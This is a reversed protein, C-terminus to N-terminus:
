VAIVKSHESEASIQVTCGCHTLCYYAEEPTKLGQDPSLCSNYACIRDCTEPHTHASHERKLAESVIRQELALDFENKSVAQKELPQEIFCGCQAKLCVEIAEYPLKKKMKLCRKKACYPDCTDYQNYEAPVAPILSSSNFKVMQTLAPQTQNTIIKVATEAISTQNLAPPTINVFTDDRMYACNNCNRVFQTYNNMPSLCEIPCYISFTVNDFEHKNFSAIEGKKYAKKQKKRM